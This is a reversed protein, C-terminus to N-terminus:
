RVPPAVGEVGIEAVAAGSVVASRDARRTKAWDGVPLPLRCKVSIAYVDARRPGTPVTFLVASQRRVGLDSALRSRRRAGTSAAQARLSRSPHQVQGVLSCAGASGSGCRSPSGSDVVLEVAGVSVPVDAHPRLPSTAASDGCVAAGRGRGTAALCLPLGHAAQHPWRSGCNCATATASWLRASRSSRSNRGPTTPPSWWAANYSPDGAGPHTTSTRLRPGAAQQPLAASRTFDCGGGTSRSVFWWKRAPPAWTAASALVTRGPSRSGTRVLEELLHVLDCPSM